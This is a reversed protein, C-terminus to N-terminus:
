EYQLKKKTRNPRIYKKKEISQKLLPKIKKNIAAIVINIDNLQTKIEIVPHKRKELEPQEEILRQKLINERESPWFYYYGGEGNYENKLKLYKSKYKKFKNEYINNM